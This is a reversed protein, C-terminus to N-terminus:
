CYSVTQKLKEIATRVRGKARPNTITLGDWKKRGNGVKDIQTYM